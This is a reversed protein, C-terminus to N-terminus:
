VSTQMAHWVHGLADPHEGHQPGQTLAQVKGLVILQPPEYQQPLPTKKEDSGM